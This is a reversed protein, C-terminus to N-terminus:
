SLRNTGGKHNCENLLGLREARRCWSEFAALLFRNKDKRSHFEARSLELQVWPLEKAHTRIIYGGQFPSNLAVEFGFSDALCEAMLHFWNQPCTGGANSLCINPREKGADPSIPPAYAAMTHCDVGLITEPALRSLQRHYPRYYRTLLMHIHKLQLPQKYIPVRYITETKVVGDPRLDDEARNMDVYARAIDTTVFATVEDPVDFIECAGEDGDVAIQESTLLNLQRVESPVQLGGHPVSILLPLNM